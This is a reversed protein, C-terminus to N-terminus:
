KRPTIVVSIRNHPTLTHVIRAAQQTSCRRDDSSENSAVGCSAAAWYVANAGSASCSAAFSTAISFVVNWSSAPSRRPAPITTPVFSPTSYMAVAFWLTRQPSARIALRCTNRFPSSSSGSSLYRAQRFEVRREVERDDTDFSELAEDRHFNWELPEAVRVRELAAVRNRHEPMGVAVGPFHRQVRITQGSRLVVAQQELRGEDRRTMRAAGEEVLMEVHDAQNATVLRRVALRHFDALNELSERRPTIRHLEAVVQALRAEHLHRSRRGM